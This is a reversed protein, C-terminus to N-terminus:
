VYVLLRSWSFPLAGQLNELPQVMPFLFGIEVISPGTLKTSLYPPDHQPVAVYKSISGFLLYDRYRHLKNYKIEYLKMVFHGVRKWVTVCM